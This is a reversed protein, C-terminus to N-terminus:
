SSLRNMVKALIDAIYKVFLTDMDQVFRQPVRSGIALIGDGANLSLPLLVASGTGDHEAHPFISSLEFKAWLKLNFGPM